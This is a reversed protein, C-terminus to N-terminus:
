KQRANKRCKEYIPGYIERDRVVCGIMGGDIMIQTCKSCAICVKDPELLGKLIIDNAFDPYAFAMRGIGVIKALGGAKAAAAVNAMLTKLWSYGTGVVAVDSYAKQIEGALSVLRSVGVVPHEPQGYAGTAPQNFPRGFHPNYHPNGISVNILKLGRERLSGVLKKPESLDPKAYDQEDVGWGFPYPVADYASLRTVIKKDPGLVQVIADIVNLLFRTRNEFSDGYKGKRNHCGLLESILYGHCSKIDVADFGVEYALRAATVYSDVLRDLYDDTVALWDKPIKSQANPDPQQQLTLADLYPNHRAILPHPRGDPKSYRGSHTLQAVLVPNHQLPGQQAADRANKVLEAFSGKNGEHLWLQRPNARGEAVVAIAEAWLLGAGGRAYREYRRSTLEGPRGQSHADAAEMPHVALSNPMVLGGADVPEALISVDQAAELTVGLRATLQKLDEITKPEQKDPPKAKAQM